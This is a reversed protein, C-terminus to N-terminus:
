ENKQNPYYYEYATVEKMNKPYILKIFESITYEITEKKTGFKIFVEKEKDYIVDNNINSYYPYYYYRNGIELTDYYDRLLMIYQRKSIVSQVITNYHLLENARASKRLFSFENSGDFYCVNVIVWQTTNYLIIKEIYEEFLEKMENLQMGNYMEDTICKDKSLIKIQKNLSYNEKKIREINEEIQRIQKKIRQHEKETINDDIGYKIAKKIYLNFEENIKKISLNQLSVIEENKQLQEEKLKINVDSNEILRRMLLRSKAM